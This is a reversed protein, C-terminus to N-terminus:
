FCRMAEVVAVFGIGVVAVVEVGSRPVDGSIIEAVGGGTRDDSEDDSSDRVRARGCGRVGRMEVEGM